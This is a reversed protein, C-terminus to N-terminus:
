PSNQTPQQRASISIINTAAAMAMSFFTGQSPAQRCRQAHRQQRTGGDKGDHVQPAYRGDYLVLTSMFWVLSPWSARRVTSSVLTVMTANADFESSHRSANCCAAM